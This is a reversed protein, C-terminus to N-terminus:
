GHTFTGGPLRANGTIADRIDQQTVEARALGPPCLLLVVALATILFRRGTYTLKM